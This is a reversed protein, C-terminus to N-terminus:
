MLGRAQRNMGTLGGAMGAAKPRLGPGPTDPVGAEGHGQVGPRKPEARQHSQPWAGYGGCGAAQPIPPPLPAM